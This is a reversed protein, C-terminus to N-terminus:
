NQTLKERAEDLKKQERAIIENSFIKDWKKIVGHINNFPVDPTTFHNLLDQNDKIFDLFLTHLTPYVVDHIILDYSIYACVQELQNFIKNAGVEQKAQFKLKNDLIPPLNVIKKGERTLVKQREEKVLESYKKVSEEQWKEIQPILVNSFIRLVEISNIMRQSNENQESDEESKKFTKVVYLIGIAGIVTAFESLLRTTDDIKKFIKDNILFYSALYFLIILVGVTVGIIIIKKNENIKTIIKKM